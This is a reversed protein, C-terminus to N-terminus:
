SPEVLYGVPLSIAALEHDPMRDIARHLLARLDSPESTARPLKTQAIEPAPRPPPEFIDVKVHHTRAWQEIARAVQDVLSRQWSDYLKPAARVQATFDRAPRESALAIQLQEKIPSPQRDAFEHMWGLQQEFPIPDIKVFRHPEADVAERRALQEGHERPSPRTALSFAQRDRQDFYRQTGPSWDVFARWLHAQIRAHTAPPRQRRSVPGQDQPPHGGPPTVLLDVGGPHLSIKGRAEAHQLFARFTSFGLQKEDFQQDSRHRMRAKLAAATVRRHLTYSESVLEELLALASSDSMTM